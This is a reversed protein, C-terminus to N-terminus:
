RDVDISAFGIISRKHETSVEPATHTDLFWSSSHWRRTDFLMATGVRWTYASHFKLDAYEKHYQTEKPNYKLVEPDYDWDSRYDYVSNDDLYRMEGQRYMLKRPEDTVIDYNVTYPQKCNWELPIIIGLVVFCDHTIEDKNPKWSNPFKLYDTHLGAPEGSHFYEWNWDYDIGLKNNWNTHLWKKTDTSVSNFRNFNNRGSRKADPIEWTNRAEDIFQLPDFDLEVSGFEPRDADYDEISKYGTIM